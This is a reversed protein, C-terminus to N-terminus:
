KNLKEKEIFLAKDYLDSLDKYPNERKLKGLTKYVNEKIGLDLAEYMIDEINPM